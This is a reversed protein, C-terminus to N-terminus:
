ADSAKEGMWRIVLTIATMAVAWAILGEAFPGLHWLPQGGRDRPHDLYRVYAVLSDLDADSVAATGFAPMNDPGVRIAEAIQTPSADHLPPAERHLLAGGDGAWAHCAACQLRFTEGGRAVDAAALDVSPIDLGGGFAGVYDVLARVMAPPYAPRHRTPGAGDDFGRDPPVLERQPPLSDRRVPTTLPMRGTSIWYDASARGAGLLTPGLRTGAGDVGHCVACDRAYVARADAPTPAIPAAPAAGSAARAPGALLTVAVAGALVCGGLALPRLTGPM